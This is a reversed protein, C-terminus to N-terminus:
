DGLISTVTSIELATETGKIDKHVNMHRMLKSPTVCGKGCIPCEHRLPEPPRKYKGTEKCINNNRKKNHTNLHRKLKSPTVCVKNCHPCPHQYKQLRRRPKKSHLGKMHAQLKWPSNLEAKCITCIYKSGIKNAILIEKEKEVKLHYETMHKNLDNVLMNCIPCQALEPSLTPSISSSKKKHSAMHRKLKSPTIWLKNCIPCLYSKRGGKKCSSADFNLTEDLSQFPNKVEIKSKDDLLETSDDDGNLSSGEILYESLEMDYEDIKWTSYDHENNRSVPRRNSRNSEDSSICM